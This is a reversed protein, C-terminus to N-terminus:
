GTKEKRKNRLSKFLDGYWSQGTGSASNFDDLLNVNEEEFRFHTDCTSSTFTPNSPAISSIIREGRKDSIKLYYTVVDAYINKPMEFRAENENWIKQDAAQGYFLIYDNTDFRGDEEGFVQIHNQVLDDINPDDINEPLLGGGNGYLHINRPDINDIDLGLEDKLFGYTMRYVRDESTTIKYIEGDALVSSESYQAFTLRQLGVLTLVLLLRNIMSSQFWESLNIIRSKHM